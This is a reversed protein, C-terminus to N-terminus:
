LQTTFQVGRDSIISILGGYLRLVEQLYLNAYDEASYKTNVPLFHTSKTMRDVFVWISDHQRRSSPLGKIFNMNIMEWMWESLEITQPLGASKKINSM